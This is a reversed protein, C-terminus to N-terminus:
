PIIAAFVLSISKKQQPQDQQPAIATSRERPKLFHYISWILTWM